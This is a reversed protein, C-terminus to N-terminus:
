FKITLKVEGGVLRELATEVNADTEMSFSRLIPSISLSVKSTMEPNQQPPPFAENFQVVSPMTALEHATPKSATAEKIAQKGAETITAKRRPVGAINDILSM